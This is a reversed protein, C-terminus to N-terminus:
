QKLKLIKLPYKNTKTLIFEQDNLTLLFATLDVKETSSLKIGQQLEKSLHITNNIGNTYHNLVENIKQFRGDHMYPYTYSLNRLSPVKFLFSDVAQLTVAYRGVDKIEPDIRLGNNKFTHNTFLPETHCSNCKTKFLQYGAKEQTTFSDTKHVVRDYKANASVLSLQFASLAKLMRQSTISTDGYADRFLTPYLSSKQLKSLVNPLSEGMEGPHSIPALAQTEIHNIAGDWMLEKQWALNFLAPANRTGISDGIGHSVAHDTHAFANYPSHCSACSITGDLSLIPDYFLARGLQISEASSDLSYNPKPFHSPRLGTIESSSFYCALSLLIFALIKM